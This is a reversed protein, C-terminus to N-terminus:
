IKQFMQCTIEDLFRGFAKWFGFRRAVGVQKKTCGVGFAPHPRRNDRLTKLIYIWLAVCAHYSTPPPSPPNSLPASRLLGDPVGDPRGDPRGDPSWRAVMRPGMRSASDATYLPMLRRWRSPVPRFLGLRGTESVARSGLSAGGARGGRGGAQMSARLAFVFVLVFCSKGTPAAPARM